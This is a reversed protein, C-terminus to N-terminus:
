SFYVFHHHKTVLILAPSPYISVNRTWQHKSGILPYHGSKQCVSPRASAQGMSVTTCTQRRGHGPPTRIENAQSRCRRCHPAPPAPPHDPSPVIGEALKAKILAANSRSQRGGGDAVRPRRPAGLGNRCMQTLRQRRCSLVGSMHIGEVNHGSICINLM